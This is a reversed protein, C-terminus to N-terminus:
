GADGGPQGDNLYGLLTDLSDLSRFLSEGDMRTRKPADNVWVLSLHPNMRRRYENRYAKRMALLRAAQRQWARREKVTANPELLPAEWPREVAQRLERDSLGAAIEPPEKLEECRREIAERVAAPLREWLELALCMAGYDSTAQAAEMFARLSEHRLRSSRQDKEMIFLMHAVNGLRRSLAGREGRKLGDMDPIPRYELMAIM